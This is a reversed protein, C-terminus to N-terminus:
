VKQLNHPKTKSSFNYRAKAYTESVGVENLDVDGMKDQNNLVENLFHNIITTKGITSGTVFTNYGGKSLIMLLYELKTTEATPVYQQYFELEMNYEFSPTQISWHLFNANGKEDVVVQYDKYL